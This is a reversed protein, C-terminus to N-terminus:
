TRAASRALRFSVSAGAMCLSTVSCTIEPATASTSVRSPFVRTFQLPYASMAFLFGIDGSVSKQIAEMVLGTVATATNINCSSPFNFTSSVTSFCRGSNLFWHNILSAPLSSFISTGAGRGIVM